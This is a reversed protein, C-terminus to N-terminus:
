CIQEKIEFLFYDLALFECLELLTENSLLDVRKPFAENSTYLSSNKGSPLSTNFTVGVIRLLDPLERLDGVVAVNPVMEKRARKKKNEEPQALLFNAQAFSHPACQCSRKFEYTNNKCMQDGEAAYRKTHQLWARVRSDLTSEEFGAAPTLERPSRHGCEAWGSLFHDIPDRVVVLWSNCQIAENYRIHKSQTQVEVTTGGNKFIHRFCFDDKLRFGAFRTFSDFPYLLSEQVNTENLRDKQTFYHQHQVLSRHLGMKKMQETWEDQYNADPITVKAHTSDNHGMLNGQQEMVIPMAMRWASGTGAVSTAWQEM